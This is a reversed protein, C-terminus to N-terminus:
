PFLDKLRKQETAFRVWAQESLQDVDIELYEEHIYQILTRTDTLLSRAADQITDWNDKRSKPLPLDMNNQFIYQSGNASPMYEHDFRLTTAWNEHISTILAQLRKDYFNFTLGGVVAEFGYWFHFIRDSIRHPLELCHEQLTPLHIQLLVETLLRLDRARVSQEPSFGSETPKDPAQQLILKLASVLLAVLKERAIKQEQKHKNPESYGFNYRAIRQRDIDFPAKTVDSYAENVLLIIREWGVKSIGYGLEILVNPNPMQRGESEPNVTSIDCVLIDCAAIKDLISAPINPSGPLERTAEDLNLHEDANLEVELRNFADRLSSRILNKNTNAPLDEQWSYFVNIM